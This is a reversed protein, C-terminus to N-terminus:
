VVIFLYYIIRENLMNRTNRFSLYQKRLVNPFSLFSMSGLWKFFM